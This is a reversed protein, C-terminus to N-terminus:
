YSQAQELTESIKIAIDRISFPKQIFGNCGQDIIEQIKININYGSSLLVKVYPDIEKLRKYTESGSMGPMTVDLIIMDIDSKDNQYIQIADEGGEAVMVRYGLKNLMQEGVELIMREDDVLLITGKGESIGAYSKKEEGIEKESSPLYINFTSGQGKESYVNIFGGHSRVIGYAFALGMGKGSGVDRTSYFPDFLREIAEKDMGQGTDTVSVKIYRGPSVEFSKQYNEDVIFNETQVYLDGGGPMAQWANVFINLFAQRIRERDVVVKWLDKEYKELFRIEKKAQAFLRIENELLQNLDTPRAEYKGERAFGLLEKALEAARRVHDEIQKLHEYRSEPPEMDILMLSVRGQIGMLINNFNHAIGGAFTGLAELKQAQLLRAETRYKETVDEYIVLQEHNEMTVPNFHVTKKEGNKCTVTYVRPRFNGAQYTNKDDIWTSIVEHRYDKEPYAKRFWERGNSIDEEDYGFIEIFKPNIYKYAGEKDIMSIGLPSAECLLRYKEENERLTDIMKLKNLGFGLDEAMEEFLAQQEEEDAYASPVAVSLIGYVKDGFGLYRTLGACDSYEGSCPCDKCQESPNRVIVTSKRELAHRMCSPFDACELRECLVKFGGRFGSGATAIVKSGKEDLLAIWSNYYGLTETLNVCAREILRNRDDEQVILQNVNRIALLIRKIYAERKQAQKGQLEARRLEQIQQELEEYSPKEHTTM